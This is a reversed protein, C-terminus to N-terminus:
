AAAEKAAKEKAVKEKATKAEAEKKAKAEEDALRKIEANLKKYADKPDALQNGMKEVFVDEKMGGVANLNFSITGKIGQLKM